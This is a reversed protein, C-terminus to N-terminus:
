GTSIRRLRDRLRGLKSPRENAADKQRANGLKGKRQFDDLFYIATEVKHKTLACYVPDPIRMDGSQFFSDGYCQGGCIYRAWCARCTKNLVHNKRFTRVTEEDVGFFVSGLRQRGDETLLRFCPYIDGEPTVYFLCFGTSCCHYKKGKAALQYMYDRLTVIPIDDISKVDEAVATALEFFCQNAKAIQEMPFVSPGGSNPCVETMALSTFGLDKLTSYITVYDVEANVTTVRPIIHRSRDQLNKLNNTIVDWSPKGNKFPRLRDHIEKCGDISLMISVNNDILYGYIETTLLTGNTTLSFNFKKGHEQIKHCYSVLQKLVSFNLLPEGGFFILDFENQSPSRELMFDVAKKAVELSMLKPKGLYAPENAFCYQCALNCSHALGLWLGTTQLDNCELTEVVESEKSETMPKIGKLIRRVEKQAKWRGYTLPETESFGYITQSAVEHAEGSMRYLDGGEVDFLFHRGALEFFHIESLEMM